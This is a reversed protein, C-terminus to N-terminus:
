NTFNSIFVLFIIIYVEFRAIVNYIIFRTRVGLQLKYVRVYCALM